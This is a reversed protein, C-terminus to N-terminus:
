QGLVRNNGRWCAQHCAMAIIESDSHMRALVMIVTLFLTVPILVELAILVKFFVLAVVTDGTLLGNAADPLFRTASYGAFIVVLIACVNVLPTLIERNLYRNILM